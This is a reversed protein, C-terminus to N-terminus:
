FKKKEKIIFDNLGLDKLKGLDKKVKYSDGQIRVYVRFWPRKNVSVEEIWSVLGKKEIERSLALADKQARFSSVQFTYQYKEELQKKSPLTSSPGNEKTTLLKEVTNQRVKEYFTLESPALVKRVDNAGKNQDEQKTTKKISFSLLDIPGYGRGVIVGLIFAWIIAIFFVTISLFIGKAGIIIKFSSSASGKKNERKAM